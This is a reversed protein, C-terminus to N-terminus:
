LSEEKLIPEHTNECVEKGYRYNGRYTDENGLITQIASHKFEKGKKSRFGAANLADAIGQLTEGNNRLEFVKRVIEAEEPVIVLKGNEARYGLPPKGGAYGGERATAYREMTTRLAINDSEVQNFSSLIGIM